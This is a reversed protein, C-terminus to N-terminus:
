LKGPRCKPENITARTGIKKIRGYCKGSCCISGAPCHITENKTATTLTELDNITTCNFGDLLFADTIEDGYSFVSQQCTTNLQILASQREEESSVATLHSLKNESNTDYYEETINICRQHGGGSIAHFSIYILM